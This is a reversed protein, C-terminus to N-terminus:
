GNTTIYADQKEFIDLDKDCSILSKLSMAATKTTSPASKSLGIMKAQIAIKVAKVSGANLGNASLVSVTSYLSVLDYPNNLTVANIDKFFNQLSAIMQNPDPNNLSQLYKTIEM